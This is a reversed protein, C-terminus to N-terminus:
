FAARGPRRRCRGPPVSPRASHVTRAPRPRPRRAAAESARPAGARLREAVEEGARGVGPEGPAARGRGSRRSAPIRRRGTPPLRRLRPHRRPHLSLRPSPLRPRPERRRPRVSRAPPRRVSRPRLPLVWPARPRRCRPGSRERIWRRRPGSRERRGPGPPPRVRPRTARAGPRALIGSRIATMPVMATAAAPPANARTFAPPEFDGAAAAVDGAALRLPFAADLAAEALGPGDGDGSAEGVGEGVGADELGLSLVDAPPPSAPVHCPVHLLLEIGAEPPNWIAKVTFPWCSFPVIVTWLPQKEWPLTSPAALPLWIVNPAMLAPPTEIAKVPFTCPSRM